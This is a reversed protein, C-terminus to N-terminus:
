KMEKRAYFIELEKWALTSLTQTLDRNEQPTLMARKRNPVLRSNILYMRANYLLQMAANM